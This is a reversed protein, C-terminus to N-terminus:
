NDAMMAVSYEVMLVVTSSVTKAAKLAVSYAVTMDVMTEVSSYVWQEVTM